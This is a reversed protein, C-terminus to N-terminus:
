NLSVDRRAIENPGDAILRVNDCSTQRMEGMKRVGTTQGAFQFREPAPLV